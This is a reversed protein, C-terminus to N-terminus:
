KKVVWKFLSEATPELSSNLVQNPQLQSILYKLIELKIQEDTLM